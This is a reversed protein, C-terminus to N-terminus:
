KDSNLHWLTTFFDDSQLRPWCLHRTTGCMKKLLPGMGAQCHALTKDTLIGGSRLREGGFAALPQPTPTNPFFRALKLVGEVMLRPPRSGSDSSKM